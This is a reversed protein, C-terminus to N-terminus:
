IIIKNSDESIAESNIKNESISIIQSIKRITEHQFLQNLTFEVGLEKEIRSILFVAKLSHGGLEIFTAIVSIKDFDLELVDAWIEVLKEEIPNSPAIYEIVNNLDLTPLSARDLKGNRTLPVNDIQQFFSPIMYEPLTGALEEKISNINSNNEVVIYSVLRDGYESKDIITISENIGELNMIKSDIEELEVRFGNIKVQKDIRGLFVMNGSEDWFGLDGTKYLKDDSINPLNIFKEDTLDKKNLYETALGIGSLHIEGTKGPFAIQQNRDIIYAKMNDIPIGIPVSLNKEIEKKYNFIICGVTAETPGYENYIEVKGDFLKHISASLRATLDEGGIILKKLKIGDKNEDIWEVLQSHQILKLHSPTLKIVDVLNDKIIKEILNENEIQNYIVIKNGNVLPTFISTVTLDFSISSFLPFAINEEEVYTKSAWTIYNILSEHSIVVGKPNGTSGSTYIIYASDKGSYSAIKETIDQNDDQLDISKIDVLNTKFQINRIKDINSIVLKVKSDDLIYKVRESPILTDIPLYVAGCKLIGLISVITDISNDLYIGVVDGKELGKEILFAVLKNVKTELESYTLKEDQHVVAIAEPHKKTQIDILETINSLIPLDTTTSNAEDIKQIEDESILSITLIEKNLDKLMEALLINYKNCILSISKESYVNSNYEVTCSIEKENSLFSFIINSGNRDVYSKDHINELLLNIDTFPNQNNRTEHGADRAIASLPYNQHDIADLLLDRTQMIIKKFTTVSSCSHKLLIETNIFDAESDQKDIPTAIIIDENLLYKYLLGVLGSMLVIHLKQDSTGALKLVSDFLDKSFTFKFKNFVKNSNDTKLNSQPFSSKELEVSFQKSWYEKDKQINSNFQAENSGINSNDM